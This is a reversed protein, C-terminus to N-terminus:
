GRVKKLLVALECNSAHGAMNYCIPCSRRATREHILELMALLEPAAAILRANPDSIDLEAECSAYMGRCDIYVQIVPGSTSRLEAYETGRRVWEWPGPTHKNMTWRKEVM